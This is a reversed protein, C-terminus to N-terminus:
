PEFDDACILMVADGIEGGHSPVIEEDVAQLEDLLARWAKHLREHKRVFHEEGILDNMSFVCYQFAYLGFDYECLIRKGQYVKEEM